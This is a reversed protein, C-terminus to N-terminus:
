MFVAAFDVFIGNRCGTSVTRFLLYDTADYERSKALYEIINVIHFVNVLHSNKSSIRSNTM